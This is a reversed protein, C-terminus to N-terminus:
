HIQYAHSADPWRLIHHEGRVSGPTPETAARKSSAKVAVPQDTRREAVVAEQSPKMCCIVPWCNLHYKRGSKAPPEAKASHIGCTSLSPECHLHLPLRTKRRHAKLMAPTSPATTCKLGNEHSNIPPTPTLFAASCLLECRIHARCESAHQRLALM